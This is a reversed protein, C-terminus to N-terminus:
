RGFFFNGGDIPVSCSKCSIIPDNRGRPAESGTTMVKLSLAVVAVVLIIECLLRFWGGLQREARVPVRGSEDPKDNQTPESELKRYQTKNAM